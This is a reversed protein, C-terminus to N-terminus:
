RLPSFFFWLKHVAYNRETKKLGRSAYSLLQYFVAGLGEINSNAQLIFPKSYDPNSLSPPTLCHKLEDSANQESEGWKWKPHVYSKPKSKGKGRTNYINGVM